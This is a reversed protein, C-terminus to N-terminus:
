HPPPALRVFLRALPSRARWQRIEEINEFTYTTKLRREEVHLRPLGAIVKRYHLFQYLGFSASLAMLWLPLEAKDRLLPYLTCSLGAGLMALRDHRNPSNFCIVRERRSDFPLQRYDIRKMAAYLLVCFLAVAVSLLFTKADSWHADKDGYTCLLTIGLIPAVSLNLFLYWRAYRIFSENVYTQYLAMALAAVLSLLYPVLLFPLALTMFGPMMAVYLFFALGSRRIRWLSTDVM